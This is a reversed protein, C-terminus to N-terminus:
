DIGGQELTEYIATVGRRVKCATLPLYKRCPLTRRSVAPDLLATFAVLLPACGQHHRTHHGSMVQWGRAARCDPTRLLDAPLWDAENLGGAHLPLWGAILLLCSSCGAASGPKYTCPYIFYPLEDFIAARGMGDLRCGLQVPVAGFM